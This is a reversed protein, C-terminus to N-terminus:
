ENFKALAENAGIPNYGLEICIRNLAESRFIDGGFSGEDQTYQKYWKKFKENEYFEFIKQADDKTDIKKLNSFNKLYDNHYYTRFFINEEEYKQRVTNEMEEKNLGSQRWSLEFINKDLPKILIVFFNYEELGKHIYQNTQLRELGLTILSDQKHIQVIKMISENLKLTDKSIRISDNKGSRMIFSFTGDSMFDNHKVITNKKDLTIKQAKSECSQLTFLLIFFLFLPHTISKKM